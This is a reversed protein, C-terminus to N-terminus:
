RTGPPVSINGSMKKIRKIGQRAYFRVEFDEDSFLARLPEIIKPDGSLICTLVANRRVHVNGDRLERVAYDLGAVPDIQMTAELASQQLYHEGDDLAAALYPLADSTGISGLARYIHVLNNKMAPDELMRILAEAAKESRIEGAAIIASSRVRWVSDHMARIFLDEAAMYQHQGLMQISFERIIPNEHQTLLSLAEMGPKGYGPIPEMLALIEKRNEGTRDLRVVIEDVKEPNEGLVSGAPRNRDFDVWFLSLSLLIGTYILVIWLVHIRRSPYSGRTVLRAPWTVIRNLWKPLPILFSSSSRYKGYTGGTLEMMRIEELLCIGIIIMTMLLWPLSSPVSWSKKMQNIFPTFLIFGYSWLIWGLYQPHRSIRYIKESTITHGGSRSKFWVLVGWTFLFAGTGMFLYSIATHANWGALGTLWMLIWYPIYIVKGLDLVNVAGIELFPLWGIRLLGLGALFFMSLAFQGFVPIFLGIAGAVAWGPKKTAYGIAILALILILSGYGIWRLHLGSIFMETKLRNVEGAGQDFQPFGFQNQLLQDLLRPLETFAFMLAISFVVALSLLGARKLLRNKMAVPTVNDKSFL